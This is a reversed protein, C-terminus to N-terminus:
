LTFVRYTRPAARMRYGLHGGPVFQDYGPRVTEHGPANQSLRTVLPLNVRDRAALRQGSAVSQLPVRTIRPLRTLNGLQEMLDSRLRDNVGRCQRVNIKGPV